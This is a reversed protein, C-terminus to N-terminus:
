WNTLNTTYIMNKYKVKFEIHGVLWLRCKRYEAILNKIHKAIKPMLHNTNKAAEKRRENMKLM